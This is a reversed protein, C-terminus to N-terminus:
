LVGHRLALWMKEAGPLRVPLDLRRWGGGVLRDLLRGYVAMMIVAPRLAAKDRPTMDALTTWAEDFRRRAVEALAACARPLAPHAVVVEPDRERIGAGELVERPLYLRGLAADEAVDRLINTLQLAHGVALAFRDARPDACGFVRVSLLGVAGAVRSCYLDLEEMPPARMAGRGDMEVGRIIAIFDDRRLGFRVIPGALACAIMGRPLDHSRDDYLAAIGDHWAALAASKAAASAPGDAIDDVERCFAYIAFMAERKERSLLRMAWYFSTGSGRVRARAFAAAAQATDGPGAAPREWAARVVGRLVCGIKQCRTLEVREALPDRLRLERALQEALAVIVSAERRMGPRRIQSALPRARAVLGDVGDLTRDLVRRLAPSAAPAALEEVSAGAAKFFDLPLYVRDLDGYDAQCDQLHNIIQLAACLADSAVHGQDDEGHLDLLFRGVPDASLRCYGLLDEWDRYRPKIADQKFAKLLNRAHEIPVGISSLAARLRAAAAFEPPVPTEGRLVADFRELGAIKQEPTLGPDDAIDDAARVVRYFLAVHPRLDAPILWSGVPFNEDKASKSPAARGATPRSM